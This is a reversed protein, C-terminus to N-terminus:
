ATPLRGTRCEAASIRTSEAIDFVNLGSTSFYYLTKGDPYISLAAESNIDGDAPASFVLTNSSTDIASVTSLRLIEESPEM